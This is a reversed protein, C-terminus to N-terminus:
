EEKLLRRLVKGTGTAPLSDRFEVHRPYKYAAMHEKSWSIIEEPTVKDKFDQKLVIFAKVSEERVPDPVGIVAVQAVASHKLLMVEVDEPFVSYGSCKIMEKLRGLFYLYGDEDIKGMDGTYVWGDRLTKATGESNNWYGKFVGPNKIVIEGQEGPGLEGGTDPSVIRVDTGCTPIGCSGFRIKDPPMFTDCTHTESLGYAAEYLLCGGTLIQWAKSIEETLAIGFSTCLNLRLSTLDRSAIGPYNMIAVNMPTVSYWMSCRYKEVATIVAEPEFRTLLVMKNAGYVPSNVGMVMGAIHFVPNCALFTDDYRFGNCNYSAATKYLANGYTLMAGKPRGTTGSTYVMLSVDEWLNIDVRPAVPPFDELLQSMDYSGTYNYKEHKLEQPVPITPEAPAFDGYGTVVVTELPTKDLIKAVIPYLDGTAFIVRAGLDNVEYELEWEKFMPSAPGVVAGLKQIGYHAIIYQPCNQMFLAVRDGKRVGKVSLFNAISDSYRDLQSWTIERGYFIYAVKDPTDSANQRLYEHLPKPGLRYEFERPVDAPWSKEVWIREM